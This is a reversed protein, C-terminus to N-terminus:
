SETESLEQFVQVSSRLDAVFKDDEALEELLKTCDPCNKLHGSCSIRSLLSMKGNRFLELEEKTYHKM